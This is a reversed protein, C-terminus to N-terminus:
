NQFFFVWTLLAALAALTLYLMPSWPGSPVLLGRKILFLRALAAVILGALLCFLWDPFFAGLINQSPSVACGGLGLLGPGGLVLGIRMTPGRGIFDALPRFATQSFNSTRSSDSCGGRREIAM